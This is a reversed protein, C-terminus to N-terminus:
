VKDYPNCIAQTFDTILGIPYREGSETSPLQNYRSSYTRTVNSGTYHKDCLAGSLCYILGHKEKKGFLQSYFLEGNSIM